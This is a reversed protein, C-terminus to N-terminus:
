AVLGMLLCVLVYFVHVLFLCVSVSECFGHLVSFVALRFLSFM